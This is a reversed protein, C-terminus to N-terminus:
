KIKAFHAPSTKLKMALLALLFKKSMKKGNMGEVYCSIAIM